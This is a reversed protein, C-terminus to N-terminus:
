KRDRKSRYFKYFILVVVGIILAIALLIIWSHFDEQRKVTDYDRVAYYLDWDGSGGKEFSIHPHDSNDIVLQSYSGDETLAIEIHWGNEDYYAYKLKNEFNNWYTIHPNDKSDLALSPWM